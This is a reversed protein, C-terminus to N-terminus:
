CGGPEGARGGAHAGNAAVALVRHAFAFNKPVQALVIPEIVFDRLAVIPINFQDAVAQTLKSRTLVGMEILINGLLSHEEHSLRGLATALQQQSVLGQDM